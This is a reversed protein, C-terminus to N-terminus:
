MKPLSHIRIEPQYRASDPCVQDEWKQLENERHWVEESLSNWNKTVEPDGRLELTWLLRISQILLWEAAGDFPIMVVKKAAERMEPLSNALVVRRDPVGKEAEPKANWHNRLDRQGKDSSLAYYVWDNQSFLELTPLNTILDEATPQASLKLEKLEYGDSIRVTDSGGRRALSASIPLPASSAGAVLLLLTVINSMTRLLLM